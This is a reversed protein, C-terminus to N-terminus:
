TGCRCCATYLRLSGDNHDIVKLALISALCRELRGPVVPLSESAVPPDEPWLETCLEDLEAQRETADAPVDPLARGTVAFFRGRDYVELKGDGTPGFDRAEARAFDPKEGRFYLKVGRGSPSVETYCRFRDVIQRGWVFDGHDDLCDDLDIGCFPDETSFVFGVGAYDGAREFSDLAEDFTAWTARNSSSANYGFRPSVPVKTPKGDRDVYKWCVWQPLKRLCLPVTETLLRPDTPLVEM